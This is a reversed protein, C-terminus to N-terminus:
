GRAGLRLRRARNPHHDREVRNRLSMIRSHSAMCRSASVDTRLREEHREGADTTFWEEYPLLNALMQGSEEPCEHTRSIQFKMREDEHRLMHVEHCRIPLKPDHSGNGRELASEREVNSPVVRMEEGGMSAVPGNPKWAASIDSVDPGTVLISLLPVVDVGVRNTPAEHLM